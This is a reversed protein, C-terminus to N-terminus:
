VSTQIQVFLEPDLPNATVKVPNEKKLVRPETAIKGLFSRPKIAGAGM